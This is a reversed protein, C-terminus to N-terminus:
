ASLLQLQYMSPAPSVPHYSVEETPASRIAADGDDELKTEQCLLKFLFAFLTASVFALFISAVVAARFQNDSSPIMMVTDRDIALGVEHPGVASQMSELQTLATTTTGLTTTGASTIALTTTGATSSPTIDLTTAGASTDTTNATDFTVSGLTTSGRTTTTLSTTKSPEHETSLLTSHLGADTGGSAVLSLDQEGPPASPRSAESQKETM